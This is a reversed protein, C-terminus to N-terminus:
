QRIKYALTLKQKRTAEYRKEREDLGISSCLASTNENYQEEKPQNYNQYNFNTDAGYPMSHNYQGQNM